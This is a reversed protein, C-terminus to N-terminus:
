APRSRGSAAPAGRRRIRHALARVGLLISATLLGYLIGFALGIIPVVIFGYAGLWAIFSLPAIGLAGGIAAAACLRRATLARGDARARLGAAALGLFPGAAGAIILFAQVGM